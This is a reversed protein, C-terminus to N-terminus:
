NLTLVAANAIRFIMKQGERDRSGDCGGLGVCVFCSHRRLFSFYKQTKTTALSANTIAMWVIFRADYIPSPAPEGLSHM